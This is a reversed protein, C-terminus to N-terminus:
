KYFLKLVVFCKIHYGIRVYTLVHTIIKINFYYTYVLVDGSSFNQGGGRECSGAGSPSRGYVAENFELQKGDSGSHSM